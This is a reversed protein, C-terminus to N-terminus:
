DHGGSPFTFEIDLLNCVREYCDLCLHYKETINRTRYPPSFLLAGPKTLPTECGDCVFHLGSGKPNGDDYISVGPSTPPLACDPNKKCEWASHYAVNNHMEHCFPCEGRGGKPTEDNM